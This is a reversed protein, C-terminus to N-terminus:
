IRDQINTVPWSFYILDKLYYTYFFFFFFEPVIGLFFHRLLNKFLIKQLLIKQSNLCCLGSLVTNYFCFQWFLIFYIDFVENKHIQKEFSFLSEALKDRLLRGVTYLM